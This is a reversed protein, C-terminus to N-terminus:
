PRCDAVPCGPSHCEFSTVKDKLMIRSSLTKKITRLRRTQPILFSLEIFVQVAFRSLASHQKVYSEYDVVNGLIITKHAHFERTVFLLREQAPILTYQTSCCRQTCMVLCSALCQDSSWLPQTAGQPVQLECAVIHCSHHARHVHSM